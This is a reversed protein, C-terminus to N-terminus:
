VQFGEQCTEPQCQKTHLTLFVNTLDPSVCWDSDSILKISELETCTGDDNSRVPLM